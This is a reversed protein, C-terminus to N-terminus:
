GGRQTETVHGSNRDTMVESSGWVVIFGHSGYRTRTLGRRHRERNSDWFRVPTHPYSSVGWNELIEFVVVGFDMGANAVAPLIAFSQIHQTTHVNYDFSTLPIFAINHTIVLASQFLELLIGTANQRLANYKELNEKGKVMGWLIMKQPAMEVSDTLELPTHAVTVHSINIIEAFAIALQGSQGHFIWCANGDDLASWASHKRKLVGSLLSTSVPSTLNGIVAAGNSHSVFDELITLSTTPQIKSSTPSPIPQLSSSIEELKALRVAHENYPLKFPGLAAGTFSIRPCLYLLLGLALACVSLMMWKPPM